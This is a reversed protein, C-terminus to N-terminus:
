EEIGLASRLDSLADYYPDDGLESIFDELASISEQMAEGKEGYQISEPLNEYSEEEESRADELADRLIERAETERGLYDEIAKSISNRRQRNM